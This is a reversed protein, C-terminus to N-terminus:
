LVGPLNDQPEFKKKFSFKSFIYLTIGVSRVSFQSLEALKKMKITKETLERYSPLAKLNTGIQCIQLAYMISVHAALVCGCEYVIAVSQGFAHMKSTAKKLNM